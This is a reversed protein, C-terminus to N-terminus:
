RRLVDIPSLPSEVTLGAAPQDHICKPHRTADPGAEESVALRLKPEQIGLPLCKFGRGALPAPWTGNKSAGQRPGSSRRSPEAGEKNLRRAGSFTM